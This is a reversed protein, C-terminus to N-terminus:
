TLLCAGLTADVEVGTQREAGFESKSNSRIGAFCNFISASDSIGAPIRSSDVALSSLSTQKKQPDNVIPITKHDRAIIMFHDKRIIDGFQTMQM